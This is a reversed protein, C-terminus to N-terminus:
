ISAWATTAERWIAATDIGDNHLESVFADSLQDRGVRTVFGVRAFRGLGQSIHWAKNFTDGAIGRQYLGGGVPAMEIM